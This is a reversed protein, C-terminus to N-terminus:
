LLLIDSADFATTWRLQGLDAGTDISLPGGAAIVDFAAAGESVSGADSLPTQFLLCCQYFLHWLLFNVWFFYNCWFDSLM